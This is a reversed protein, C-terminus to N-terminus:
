ASVTIAKARRTPTAGSSAFWKAGARRRSYAAGRPPTSHRSGDLSIPPPRSSVPPPRWPTRRTTARVVVRRGLPLKGSHGRAVPVGDPAPGDPTSEDLKAKAVIERGIWEGHPEGTVSEIVLGLLGFGHNSYKFRASTELVPPEALAARLEKEDLFPRRDQWQGADAGDRVLGASHSLLQNLTTEAVAPHLDDVHQGVPDDLRLKGTERLKLIGAATFSKSHSAVRFRHRPTLREGTNLNAHGYAREFVVRGKHAVAVVCGPQETQRMRYDLWEGTHALAWRLWAHM